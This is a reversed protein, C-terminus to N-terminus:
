GGGRPARLKETIADLLASEEPTVGSAIGLLKALGGGSAEAVRRCGKAIDHIREEREPATLLALGAKTVEAATEFLADPPRRRLWEALQAHPPSGAEIGRSAAIEFIVERERDTVGGAWAVQVLPALLIAAGTERTLGLDAVRHLLEQDDVRLKDALAQAVEQLRARQRMKELLKEDQKRFYDAEFARERDKFIDKAV